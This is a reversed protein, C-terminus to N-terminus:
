ATVRPRSSSSPLESYWWYFELGKEETVRDDMSLYAASLTSISALQHNSPRAPHIVLQFLGSARYLDFLSISLTRKRRAIEVARYYDVGGQVKDTIKVASGTKFLDGDKDADERASAIAQCEWCLCVSYEDGFHVRYLRETDSMGDRLTPKGIKDDHNIFRGCRSEM